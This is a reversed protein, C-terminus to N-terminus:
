ELVSVTAIAPLDAVNYFKGARSQLEAVPIEVRLFPSQQPLDFSDLKVRFCTVSIKEYYKTYPRLWAEDILAQLADYLDQEVGILPERSLVTDGTIRTQHVAFSLIKAAPDIRMEHCDKYLAHTPHKFTNITFTDSLDVTEGAKLRDLEEDLHVSQIPKLREEELLRRAAEPSMHPLEKKTVVREVIDRGTTERHIDHIRKKELQQFLDDQENYYNRFMLSARIFPATHDWDLIERHVMVVNAIIGGLFFIAAAEFAASISLHQVVDACVYVIAIPPGALSLLAAWSLIGAPYVWWSPLSLREWNDKLLRLPYYFLAFFFLSTLFRGM